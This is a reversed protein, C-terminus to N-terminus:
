RKLFAELRDVGKDINAMSTAFSLRVHDPFGFDTGPVLAVHAEDLIIKCFEVAQTAVQASPGLPRNLVGGIDPFVYFAGTPRVCKLGPIANLRKWIHLGRAEFAERMKEVDQELNPNSYAEVIAPM